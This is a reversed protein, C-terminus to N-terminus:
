GKRFQWIITDVLWYTAITGWVKEKSMGLEKTGLSMRDFYGMSLLTIGQKNHCDRLVTLHAELM